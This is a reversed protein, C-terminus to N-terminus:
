ALDKGCYRSQSLVHESRSIIRRRTARNSLMLALVWGSANGLEDYVSVLKEGPDVATDKVLCFATLVVVEDCDEASRTREYRGREGQERGLHPRSAIKGCHGDGARM